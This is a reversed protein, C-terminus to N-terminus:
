AFIIQFVFIILHGHIFFQLTFTENLDYPFFFFHPHHDFKPPLTQGIAYVTDGNQLYTDVLAEGLGSSVGTILINKM